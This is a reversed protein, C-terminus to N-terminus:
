FEALMMRAMEVIEKDSPLTSATSGIEMGVSQAESVSMPKRGCVVTANGHTTYYRNDKLTVIAPDCQSVSTVKDVCAPNRCGLLICTNNYFGDGHGDKFSGVDFCNQGDYRFYCWWYEFLRGTVSINITKM